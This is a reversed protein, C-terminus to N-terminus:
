AAARKLPREDLVQGCTKCVIQEVEYPVGDRQRIVHRIVAQHNHDRSM